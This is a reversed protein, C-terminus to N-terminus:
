FTFVIDLETLCSQKLSSLNLFKYMFPKVYNFFFGMGDNSTVNKLIKLSTIDSLLYFFLSLQIM